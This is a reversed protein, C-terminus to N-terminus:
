TILTVSVAIGLSYKFLTEGNHSIFKLFNAFRCEKVQTGIFSNAKYCQPLEDNGYKIPKM